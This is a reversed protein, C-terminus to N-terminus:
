GTELFALEVYLKKGSSRVTSHAKSRLPRVEGPSKRPSVSRSSLRPSPFLATVSMSWKPPSPAEPVHVYVSSALSKPVLSDSNLSTGKGSM